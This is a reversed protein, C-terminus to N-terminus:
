PRTLHQALLGELIRGHTIGRVRLRSGDLLAEGLALLNRRLRGDVEPTELYRIIAASATAWPKRARPDEWGRIQGLTEAATLLYIPSPNTAFEDMARGFDTALQGVEENDLTESSGLYIAMSRSRITPLLDLRSAALLLFHRPSRSPPEELLKLLSDAAGGSLSDAETIVFVQGRAEFPAAYAGALFKKTAGTSTATRLDRELVHFDPHFHEATWDIRHCHACRAEDSCPRRSVPEECLLLRAVEVAAGKRGESNTGYLILSPYLREQRAAQRVNELNM